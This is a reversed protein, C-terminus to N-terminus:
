DDVVQGLSGRLDADVMVVGLDELKRQFSEVLGPYNFSLRKRLDAGIAKFAAKMYHVNVAVFLACIAAAIAFYAIYYIISTIITTM